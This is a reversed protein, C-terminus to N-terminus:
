IIKVNNDGFNKRLFSMLELDSKIWLERDLRFKKREKKTCLYVPINGKFNVFVSRLTELAEKLIDQDEILIYLKETDIRVLPEIVECLLKPQEDERVSVRGKVIIMYDDEILSKFRQFVKPFVIIEMIGYLDELKAFAMMDNNKTIKKSVESLIGGVIVRDGDNVKAEEVFNDELTKRGVIDSIKTNAQLELTRAYEDLPHGSLYLGTMEKEMALMDMKKFEEISPYKIRVSSDEIQSFLSVQGEINKKRSNIVSDIVKEHVAILQSRLVGFCDFAGAKILSEVVRKNISNLDISNCFDVLDKFKGHKSRSRVISDIVNEGVNKIASLGFRINGDEVTFKTCSENISPPMIEIGISKAFRIYYAVKESDGKVSNLMAATFETPYYYMLYATRFAVVAYAAAHSKNFAYSAFDMMSDFIDNAIKESIGNRVCGPVQIEGKEDVIGYVFNHREEEMVHHKKKSMARRVLDSRGMSYGALDRVIQMVQEQYVMCGYTVSLIHELQPTVYEIGEPNNKNKIYKPIESMPGPRYLSIGAIIDELSDPKLEKMFSSFGPSELQFVGVTKGEGIMNYVAKDDYDITDLDIEIGKDEKIMEVADRLVTLTRLGLFDMKLLGLEELTNMTFQTVINDENKQLPVYNVLPESAIVVGAAHTSTHRPLGELARAIDILEKTRSESDYAEKFEPNMDLAKDITINPISPIMKAIRDVEGYSYNMARGVDRICMKAAMTGFTIIQSVSDKGYKEVVYDIVEGRREYCFDSDIDPMSVREPNLFREFILKYKIPDIKTIELTYAVISGAGSGRGPGTMIGNKRAFRIFDWVILFYDVYGMKKIIGLEYELRSKLEDTVDNYRKYLGKYCLDKMYEYPDTDEPLPFKPLKSKHFEYDFNCQDAIKITNELSEPVNSFMDYMEDPSKLYFEDSPYRMRNEEDVTKGTQICLLIDHARYDEKKIYHVDNTAVLPINLKKSMSILQENIKLQDAIGHYQVELYFGDKFTNKYFLATEEAKDINGKLINSQVEGSMCASLAILGESHNKLYDHDVRPKYYFGKISATSVIKMLNQYGEENKVLLVLHYNENKGNNQKITMDGQSVYIECGIIPKIGQAKAEKYFEVCGYMVGHDTIAMSDMGLEKARAILEPIKASSDLLSYETHQHLSVWKHKEEGM